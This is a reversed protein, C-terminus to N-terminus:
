FVKSLTICDINVTDLTVNRTVDMDAVGGILQGTTDLLMNCVATRSRSDKLFGDVRMGLKGHENLLMSAFEDEGVPSLLLTANVDPSLGGSLVRHAAEAVNRAVGGLNLSVTGPATTNAVVVSQGDRAKSVNATIDIASAGIM